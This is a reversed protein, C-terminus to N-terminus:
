STASFSGRRPCPLHWSPVEKPRPLHRSAGEWNRPLYRSPGEMAWPVHRSPTRAPSLGRWELVHTHTSIYPPPEKEWSTPGFSKNWLPLNRSPTQLTLPLGWSPPRFNRRPLDRFIRRFTGRPCLFTGPLDCGMGLFNGLLQGATPLSPAVFPGRKASSPPPFNM